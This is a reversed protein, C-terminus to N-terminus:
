FLGGVGFAPHSQGDRGAIELMVPSLRPAAAHQPPPEDPPIGDIASTAVFTIALGGLAGFCLGKYLNATNSGGNSSAAAGFLLGIVAGGYGGWTAVRVRELSVDSFHAGLLGLGLGGYLGALGAGAVSRGTPATFSSYSGYSQTKGGFGEMATVSLILGWFGADRVLQTDGPDLDLQKAAIVAAPVSLLGAGATALAVHRSNPNPIFFDAGLLVTTPVYSTIALALPLDGRDPNALSLFAVAGVTYAMGGLAVPTVAESTTPHDLSLTYSFGVSMGYLFATTGFDLKEWTSLRLRESTKLSYPEGRVVVDGPAAGAGGPGPSPVPPPAGAPLLRASAAIIRIARRAADAEPAAPFEAAVREYLARALDLNGADVAADAAALLNAATTTAPAPAPAPWGPPAAVTPSEPASPAPAGAPEEARAAPAVAVALLAGITLGVRLGM